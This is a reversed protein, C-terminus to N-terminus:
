LFTKLNWNSTVKIIELPLDLTRNKENTFIEADVFKVLTQFPISPDMDISTNKIERIEVFGKM